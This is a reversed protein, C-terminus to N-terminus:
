LIARSSASLTALVTLFNLPAPLIRMQQSCPCSVLIASASPTLPAGLYGPSLYQDSSQIASQSTSVRSTSKVDDPRDTGWIILDVVSGRFMNGPKVITRRVPQLRCLSLCSSRRNRKNKNSQKQTNYQTLILFHISVPIIILSKYQRAFAPLHSFSM